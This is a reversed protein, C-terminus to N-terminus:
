QANGNNVSRIIARVEDGTLGHFSPMATHWKDYLKAQYSDKGGDNISKAPDEIFAALKATDNNWRQLVNALAPGTADKVMNHCSACNASFLAKGDPVASTAGNNANDNKSGGCAAIMVSLALIFIVPKM